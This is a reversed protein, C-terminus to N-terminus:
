DIAAGGGAGTTVCSVTGATVGSSTAVLRRGPAGALGAAGDGPRRARDGPTAAATAPASAHPSSAHITPVRTRAGAGCSASAGGAAEEAPSAPPRSSGGAGS